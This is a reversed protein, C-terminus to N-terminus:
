LWLTVKTLTMLTEVSEKVELYFVLMKLTASATFSTEGSIFPDLSTGLSGSHGGPFLACWRQSINFFNDM